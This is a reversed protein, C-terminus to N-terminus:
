DSVPPWVRLLADLADLARPWTAESDPASHGFGGSRELDVYGHIASGLLRVAHTQEDGELDYARLIARTMEAHRRSASEAAAPPDVRYHTADYRGPHQRAYGRYADAFAGLADRGSRGALAEAVEDALEELAAVAIRTRLDQSGSLHSYVSAPKIGFHRALASVTVSEFGVEDALELGARALKDPTVGSRAM